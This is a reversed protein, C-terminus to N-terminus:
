AHETEKLKIIICEHRDTKISRYGDELYYGDLFDSADEETRFDFEEFLRNGANDNIVYMKLRKCKWQRLFIAAGQDTISTGSTHMATQANM